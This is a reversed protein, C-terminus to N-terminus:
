NGSNDVATEEPIGALMSNPEVPKTASPLAEPEKTVSTRRTQSEVPVSPESSSTPGTESSVTTHTKTPVSSGVSQVSVSSVATTRPSLTQALVPTDSALLSQVTPPNVSAPVVTVTADQISLANRSPSNSPTTKRKLQSVEDGAIRKRKTGVSTSSVTSAVSDTPSEHELEGLAVQVGNEELQHMLTLLQTSAGTPSPPVVVDGDAAKVPEAAM